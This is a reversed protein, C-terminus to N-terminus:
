RKARFRTGVVSTIPITTRHRRRGPTISLAVKYHEYKMAKTFRVLCTLHLIFSCWTRHYISKVLEM